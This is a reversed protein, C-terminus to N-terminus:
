HKSRQFACKGEQRLTPCREGLPANLIFMCRMTCAAMGMGRAGGVRPSVLRRTRVRCNQGRRVQAIEMRSHAVNHRVLSDESLAKGFAIRERLVFPPFIDPSFFFSGSWPPLLPLMAGLFVTPAGLTCGRRSCRSTSPLPLLLSPLSTLVCAVPHAQVRVCQFHNWTDPWIIGVDRLHSTIFCLFSAIGM